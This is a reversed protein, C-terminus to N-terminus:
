RKELVVVRPIRQLDSAVRVLRLRSLGDVLTRIADQQGFGFEFLLFGRELKADAQRLLARIAELGDPGAFLAAHPEFERVEPPLVGWDALPVYPPNSVIIAPENLEPIGDAEVFEIRADVGHRRANRRAVDLAAASIDTAVFTAQPLERALAIAICGSGTGVDIVRLPGAGLDRGTMLRACDITQEVLLETEPRPILVAPSVDFDLTWFERHGLIYAVPERRERRSALPEFREAFGDPAADHRVILLQERTWGLVERVLLEADLAAEDNDIGAATFRDRAGAIWHQFTM